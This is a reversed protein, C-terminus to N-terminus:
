EWDEPINIYIEIILEDFDYPEGSDPDCDDGNEHQLEILAEKQQTIITELEQALEEDLDENELISCLEDDGSEQYIKKLAKYLKNSFEIDAAEDEATYGGYFGFSLNLDLTKM